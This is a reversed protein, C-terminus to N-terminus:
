ADHKDKDKKHIPIITALKWDDPLKGQNWSFNYFDLLVM